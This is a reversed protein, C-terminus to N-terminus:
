LFLCANVRRISVFEEMWNYVIIRPHNKSCILPDFTIMELIILIYLLVQTFHGSEFFCM